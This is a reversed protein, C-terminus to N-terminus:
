YSDAMIEARLRSTNSGRFNVENDIRKILPACVAELTNREGFLEESGEVSSPPWVSSCMALM